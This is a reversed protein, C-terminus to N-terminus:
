TTTGAAPACVPKIPQNSNDLPSHPVFRVGGNAVVVGNGSADVVLRCIVSDDDADDNDGVILCNQFFAITNGKDTSGIAPTSPAMQALQSLGSLQAGGRAIAGDNLKIAAVAPKGIVM